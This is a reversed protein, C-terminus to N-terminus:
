LYIAPGSLGTPYGRERPHHRLLAIHEQHAHSYHRAEDEELDQHFPCQAREWRRHTGQQTQLGHSGTEPRSPFARTRLLKDM